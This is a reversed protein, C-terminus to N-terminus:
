AQPAGFALPLSRLRRGTASFFANAIAPAIATIPAEGAGASPLDTRNLLVTDLDPLDSFRPVRYDSFRPNLIRGDQFRIQEMLAGGIGQVVAGEVQNRLDNPNIIAGCEFATVARRVRITEGAGGADAAGASVVEVEACTAVYGGKETGCALGAARNPSARYTSWGFRDAAAVLADRVRGPPLHRLRFALPNEGLSHALEDMMSERAFTNATAALARYSGQRLPSRSHHFESLQNPVDYPTRLASAGANHCHHEWAVLRGDADLGAAVRVLGAPRLYDWNFEDERTWAVKVPAGVARGLRAAELAAEGTHKGGYGSGTDPVVVRVSAEPLGFAAVLEAQVGFPRQTGTWVTLSTRDESWQAVAARPELPAHAIYANTYTSTIRTRAALQARRLDGQEHRSRGALQRGAETEGTERALIDFLDTDSPQSETQWEARISTLAHTAAHATTAVVGVIDDQRVVAVGDMREAATTDASVLRARYAPPRLVRGFRIGALSVYSAYRHSGTVMARASLKPADRGAVRWEAAHTYATEDGFTADLPSEAALDAFTLSQGTEAHTVAGDRVVLASTDSEWREAAREILRALAAAAARRLRPVMDPTSRSGFTGRDFPVQHTDALIVRVREFPLRLEDAVAQALSTRVNQGVEAKGALVTVTNDPGFRLCDDSRQPDPDTTSPAAPPITALGGGFDPTTAPPNSATVSQRWSGGSRVHWV